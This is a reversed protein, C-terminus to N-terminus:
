QNFDTMARSLGETFIISLTKKIKDTQVKLNELESKRFDSLVYKSVAEEGKPKNIEGTDTTPSIGIRIRIFKQTGISKIISEVGNHGGSSRDFSIRSKGTPLDLDDYIVILKEADKENKIFKKVANGSLNMFNDPTLFKIGEGSLPLNPPTEKLQEVIIRGANHRTNKYEEGPNGLGVIIYEM